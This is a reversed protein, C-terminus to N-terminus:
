PSNRPADLAGHLMEIAESMEANDARKPGLM